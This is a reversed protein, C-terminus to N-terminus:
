DAGCAVIAEAISESSPPECEGRLLSEIGEVSWGSLITVVQTDSLGLKRLRTGYDNM